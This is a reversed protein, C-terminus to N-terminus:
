NPSGITLSQQLNLPLYTLLMVNPKIDDVQYTNDLKDGSRV